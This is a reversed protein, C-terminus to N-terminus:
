VEALFARDEPLILVEALLANSLDLGRRTFFLRGCASDALGQAVARQWAHRDLAEWAESAAVGQETRLGLM